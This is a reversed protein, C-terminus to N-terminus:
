QNGQKAKIHPSKDQRVRDQKMRNQQHRKSTRNKRSPFLLTSRSSLPSPPLSPLLSHIPFHPQSPSYLLLIQELKLYYVFFFERKRVSAKPSFSQFAQTILSPAIFFMSCKCLFWIKSLGKYM